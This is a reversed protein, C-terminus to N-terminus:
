FRIVARGRLGGTRLSDLMQGVGDLDVASYIRATITGDALMRAVKTLGLPSSLPNASSAGAFDIGMVFPYTSAATLKELLKNDVPNMGAYKVRILSAGDVAPIPLSHITPAEGFSGVAFARM